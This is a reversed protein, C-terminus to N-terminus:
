VGEGKEPAEEHNAPLYVHFTTGHNLVSRTTIYGRHSKVIGHAISLGLGTGEGLEKTTYFPEFIRDLQEEPIGHGTDRVSVVVYPGTDADPFDELLEDDADRLGVTVDLVGGSPMADRANVCLNLIVQKLQNHDGSVFCPKGNVHRQLQVTDPLGPGVIGLVQDLVQVVDVRVRQGSIGRGYTLINQVLELGSRASVEVADLIPTVSIDRLKKRLLPISMAVPALINQLDHAMGGTLLAISEMKQARVFQSELRRKETVDSNVILISTGKGSEKEITRWRSEVLIEKGDKRCQHHDGNWEDFQLVDEMAALYNEWQQRGYLLAGLARGSADLRSWGYMLEAGSNWYEIIGRGDVVIVADQTHDLLMGQEKIKEEYYKRKTMDIMVAQALGEEGTLKASFLLWLDQGDSGTTHIEFETLVKKLTLANSICSRVETPLKLINRQLEDATTCRFLGRVAENSEVVTWRDLSFKIIGAVSNDFLGRYKEESRQVEELQARQARVVRRHSAFMVVITAVAFTLLVLTGAALIMMM